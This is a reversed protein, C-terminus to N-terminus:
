DERAGEYDDYLPEKYFENALWDGGWAAAGLVIPVVFLIISIYALLDLM